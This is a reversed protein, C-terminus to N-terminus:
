QYVQEEQIPISHPLGSRSRLYFLLLAGDTSPGSMEMVAVCPMFLVSVGLRGKVKVIASSSGALSFHSQTSTFPGM